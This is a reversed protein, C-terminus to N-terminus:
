QIRIDGISKWGQDTKVIRQLVIVLDTNESKSRIRLNSVFELRGDKKLSYDCSIYKLKFINCNNQFWNKNQETLARLREKKSSMVNRKSAENEYDGNEMLFDFDNEDIILPQFSEFKDSGLAEVVQQSFEEITSTTARPEQGSCSFLLLALLCITKM